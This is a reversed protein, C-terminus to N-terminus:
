YGQGQAKSQENDIEEALITAQHEILKQTDRLFSAANRLHVNESLELERAQPEIWEVISRLSAEPDSM